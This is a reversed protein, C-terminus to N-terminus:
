HALLWGFTLANKGDRVGHAIDIRLVGEAGPIKIRLGGGIDL